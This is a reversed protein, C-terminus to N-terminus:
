GLPRTKLGFSLRKQQRISQLISQIGAAADATSEHEWVRIVNWGAEGLRQDTDRDRQRNAELKALWWARNAKPQTTHIPCCHWFCGDVFVALREASFVLDARRRSGPLVVRDVRYRFGAAHLARRLDIEAATDRRRTAQMRKHAEVSSPPPSVAIVQRNKSGRFRSSADM